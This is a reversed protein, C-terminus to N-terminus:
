TPNEPLRPMRGQDLHLFGSSPNKPLILKNVLITEKLKAIDYNTTKVSHFADVFLTHV